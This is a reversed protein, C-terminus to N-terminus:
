MRHAFSAASFRPHHTLFACVLRDSLACGSRIRYLELYLYLFLISGAVTCSIARFPSWRFASATKALPLRELGHSLLGQGWILCRLCAMRAPGLVLWVLVTALLPLTFPNWDYLGGVKMPTSLTPTRVLMRLRSNNCLPTSAGGVDNGSKGSSITDLTIPKRVISSRTDSDRVHLLRCTHILERSKSDSGTSGPETLQLATNLFM